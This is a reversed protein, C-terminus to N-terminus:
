VLQYLIMMSFIQWFHFHVTLLIVELSFVEQLMVNLSHWHFQHRLSSLHAVMCLMM